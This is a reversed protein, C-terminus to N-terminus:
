QFSRSVVSRVTILVMPIVTYRRRIRLEIRGRRLCINNSINYAYLCM